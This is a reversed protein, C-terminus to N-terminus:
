LAQKLVKVEDERWGPSLTYNWLSKSDTHNLHKKKM